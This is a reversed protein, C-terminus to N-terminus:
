AAPPTRRRGDDALDVPAGVLDIRLVDAGGKRSDPWTVFASKEGSLLALTSGLDKDTGPRPNAPFWDRRFPENIASVPGFTRGGDDSTTFRIVTPSGRGDGVAAYIVDLRGSGNAAIQPLLAHEDGANIQVPKTWNTGDKDSSSLLVGPTGSRADSWVVHIGGGADSVAGPFQPTFVLFPEPPRVAADIVEESFTVGGDTSRAAVLEFTGEYVGEVNSFDFADRGYDYYVVTVWGGGGVVPVPAGVRERRAASVQVPPEFTIGGDESVMSMVASPPAMQLFGVSAAEVWTVFVRAPASGRDVVLRVMFKEAGLVQSATEFTRGGDRSRTIWVGSPVNGEGALTVFALHVTGDADFALSTTYCREAGPPLDLRGPDWNRGSDFSAAVGCSYAPLEIRYGVVYNDPDRPNAAIVPSSNAQILAEPTEEGIQVNEEVVARLAGTAREDRNCSGAGVLALAVSMLISVHRFSAGHCGLRM